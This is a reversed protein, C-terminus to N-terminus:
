KNRGKLWDDRDQRCQELTPRVCSFLEGSSARYDYQVYDNGRFSFVEHREEGPPCTSCGHRDSKM